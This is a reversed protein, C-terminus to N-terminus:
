LFLASDDGLEDEDETEPDLAAEKLEELRNFRATRVQDKYSLLKEAKEDEDMGATVELFLAHSQAEVTDDDALLGPEMGEVLKVATSTLNTDAEQLNAVAEKEAEDAVDGLWSADDTTFQSVGFTPEDISVQTAATKREDEYASLLAAEKDNALYDLDVQTGSIVADLKVRDSLPLKDDTVLAKARLNLERGVEEKSEIQELTDSAMAEFNDAESLIQDIASEFIPEEVESTKLSEGYYSYAEGDDHRVGYQDGLITAMKSVVKGLKGDAEVRDGVSFVPATESEPLLESATSASKVVKGDELLYAREEREVIRSAM